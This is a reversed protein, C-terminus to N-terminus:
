FLELLAKLALYLAFVVCLGTTIAASHTSMFRNMRQLVPQARTGAVTVVTAPLWVVVLTVVLVIALCLAKDQPTVSSRTIARFAPLYLVLTSFNTLMGLVGAALFAISPAGDLRQQLTRKSPSPAADRRTWTRLALWTLLLAAGGDVAADIAPHARHHPLSTSLALGGISFVVLTLLSGLAVLWARLRPQNASTLALMEIGFLVPSIAAGVALPLVVALLQSM